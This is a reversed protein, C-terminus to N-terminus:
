AIGSNWHERILHFSDLLLQQTINHNNAGHDLSVAYIVSEGKYLPFRNDATSQEERSQGTLTHVTMLKVAKNDEWIYFDCVNGLDVVSINRAIDSHFELYWGGAFHHYTYFKDVEEGQPTLSYWRIISEGSDQSLTDISRMPIMDPLEMIGDQNIDDAYLFYNRLTKVSTGSESSLSVNTFVENVVAFVDTILTDDDVASAVYVAPDGGQLSGVLIRKLNDANESLDLAASHEVVGKAASFLEVVGRDSGAAGARLVFLESHQDTNLDATLFKIYNTSVLQEAKGSEFAYVSVTRTLQNSVQTGVVIEMGARHDMPVYEVKDFASGVFNLTQSHVYQGGSMSFILIHLPQEDSDKAFLLCEMVGDGDLDATQVNQQNDGSVPACYAMGEMSANIVTQLSYFDDSRRPPVYMQDVTRMGCGCLSLTVIVLIFILVKQKM